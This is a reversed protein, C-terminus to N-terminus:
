EEEPTPLEFIRKLYKRVENRTLHGVVDGAIPTDYCLDFSNPDEPDDDNYKVVALECLGASGGHAYISGSIVSAGYGNPFRYIEQLTAGNHIRRALILYQMHDM